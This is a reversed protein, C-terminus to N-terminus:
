KSPAIKRSWKRAPPFHPLTDDHRPVPDMGDQFHCDDYRCDYDRFDHRFDSRSSPNPNIGM